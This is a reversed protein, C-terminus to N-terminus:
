EGVGVKDLVGRGGIGSSSSLVIMVLL